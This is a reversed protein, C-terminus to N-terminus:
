PSSHVPRRIKPEQLSVVGTQCHQTPQAFAVEAGVRRRSDDLEPLQGLQESFEDSSMMCEVSVFPLAELLRQAAKGILADDRLLCGVNEMREALHAIHRHVLRFATMRIRQGGQLEAALEADPKMASIPLLTVELGDRKNWRRLRNIGSRCECLLDGGELALKRFTFIGCRSRMSCGFFM